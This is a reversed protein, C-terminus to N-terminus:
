RAQRGLQMEITAVENPEISVTERAESNGSKRVVISRQGALVRTSSFPTVGVHAGDILVDAGSPDSHVVIGGYAISGRRTAYWTGAVISGGILFSLVIILADRIIGRRPYAQLVSTPVGEITPRAPPLDPLKMPETSGGPARRSVDTDEDAVMRKVRHTRDTTEEVEALKRRQVRDTNDEDDSASAVPAAARELQFPRRGLAGYVVATDPERAELEADFAADDADAAATTRAAVAVSVSTAEVGAPSTPAAVSAAVISSALVPARQPEPSPESPMISIVTQENAPPAEAPMGPPELGHEEASYSRANAPMSVIQAARDLLVLDARREEEFLSQMWAGLDRPTPHGYHKLMVQVVADHMDSASAYRDGPERALAKLVIQELEEPIGPVVLSPPYAEAYRVKELISFDSTGPFLRTLTLMEFFLVGAAFLDSRADVTLARVQEPSMYGYKGRLVGAQSQASHSAAKAIGFDILKVEGAYSLLVNQPSIDRHVIHLPVGKLDTKRHAYDLGDLVHAIILLVLGVPIGGGKARARDIVARLDRGLVHEMAIFYTAEIRGLEYTKAINAHQLQVSLKAEDIFMAVVPDEEFEPRVCKLAFVQDSGGWGFTKALYVYAMGGQNIRELLLYKGLRYAM